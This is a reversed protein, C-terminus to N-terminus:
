APVSFDFAAEPQCISSVYAGRARQAVYQQKADDTNANVLEIRDAQGQQTLTVTSEIVRLHVGNFDGQSGATLLTQPKAKFGAKQLRRDEKAMFEPAGLNLTVDTQLGVIGFDANKRSVMLCPDFFSAELDLNVKHHEEYTAFWHLGAEALRYLPKKIHVITQPPYKHRIEIPLEALVTRLLTTKSQTYAQTIDRLM